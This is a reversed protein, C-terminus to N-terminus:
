KTTINHLLNKNQQVVFNYLEDTQKHIYQLADFGNPQQVGFQKCLQEIKEIQNEVIELINKNQQITFECLIGLQTKVFDLAHENLLKEAAFKYIDEVRTIIFKLNNRNLKVVFKCIQEIQEEANKTMKMKDNNNEQILILNKNDM